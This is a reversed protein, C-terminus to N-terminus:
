NQHPSYRYKTQTHLIDLENEELIPVKTDSKCKACFISIKRNQKAGKNWRGFHFAVGQINFVLLELVGEGGVCIM